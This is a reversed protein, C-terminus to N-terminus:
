RKDHDYDALIEKLTRITDILDIETFLGLDNAAIARTIIEDNSMTALLNETILNAVVAYLHITRDIEGTLELSTTLALRFGPINQNSAFLKELEEHIKTYKRSQIELEKLISLITEYNKTISAKNQNYRTKGPKPFYDPM